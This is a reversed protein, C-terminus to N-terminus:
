RLFGKRDGILRLTNNTIRAFDQYKKHAFRAKHGYKETLGFHKIAMKLPIEHGYQEYALYAVYPEPELVITQPRGGTSRYPQIIEKKHEPLEVIPGAEVTVAAPVESSRELERFDGPVVLPVQFRQPNHKSIKVFDGKGLLSDLNLQAVRGAQYSEGDAVKGTLRNGLFNYVPKLFKNPYQAGIVLWIYLDRGQSAIYALRKQDAMKLSMSEDIGLVILSDSFDRRGNARENARQKVLFEVQKIMESQDEESRAIPAALYALHDLDFLVAKTDSLFFRLTDPKRLQMLTLLVVMFTNSKGSGSGGLVCTQPNVAPSVQWADQHLFEVQGRDGVGINGPEIDALTYTKTLEDPLPFQFSLLGNRRMAFVNEVGVKLAVATVLTLAKVVQTSDGLRYDLNIYRAENKGGQMRAAIKSRKLVQLTGRNYQYALNKFESM